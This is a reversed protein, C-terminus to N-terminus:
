EVGHAEPMEDIVPYRAGDAPARRDADRKAHRAMAPSLLALADRIAPESLYEAALMERISNGHELKRNWVRYLTRLDVKGGNFLKFLMEIRAAHAERPAVGDLWSYITKREVKIIEAIAAIPLGGARLRAVMDNVSLASARDTKAVSARAAKPMVAILLSAGPLLLPSVLFRPTRARPAFYSTAIM